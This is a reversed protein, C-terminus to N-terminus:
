QLTESGDNDLTPAVERFSEAMEDAYGAAQEQGFDAAMAGWASIVLGAYFQALAQPPMSRGAKALVPLCVQEFLQAGMEVPAGTLNIKM